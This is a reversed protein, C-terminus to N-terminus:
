ACFWFVAHHPSSSFRIRQPCRSVNEGFLVKPNMTESFVARAHAFAPSPRVLDLQMRDYLGPLMGPVQLDHGRRNGAGIRFKFVFLDRETAMQIVLPGARVVVGAAAHRNQFHRARQLLQDVVSFERPRCARDAKDPRRFDFARQRQQVALRLERLRM